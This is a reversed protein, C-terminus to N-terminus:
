DREVIPSATDTEPLMDFNSGNYEFTGLTKFGAKTYFNVAKKNDEQVGGWLIIKKIGKTKLDSLIFNFLAKGIDHSQWHDAVSPTFSFCTTYNLALGYSNLRDADQL